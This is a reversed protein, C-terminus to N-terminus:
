RRAAFANDSVTVGTPRTATHEIGCVCTPRRARRQAAGPPQRRRSRRGPLAPVSIRMASAIPASATTNAPVADVGVVPLAQPGRGAADERSGTRVLVSVRLRDRAQSAPTRTSAVVSSPSTAEVVGLQGRRGRPQEPGLSMPEARRKRREASAGPACGSAPDAGLAEVDGRGRRDAQILTSPAARNRM